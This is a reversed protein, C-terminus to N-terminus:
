SGRHLIRYYDALEDWATAERWGFSAGDVPDTNIRTRPEVFETQEKLELRCAMDLREEMERAFRGAFSGQSEVYGSPNIQTFGAEIGLDHVFRLYSKALLSVHINDRTYAPTNVTAVKGEFWCRMLYATFRPEEIPGFPNPIVFKGLSTGSAAAFYRFVDATLGKSLGYPSFAPSDRLGAGERNEFYSGTLVVRAGGIAALVEGIRAANNALARFLDFDASKYDTSDAAHHCLLDWPGRDRILGLFRDSGFSCNSEFRCLPTLLGVRQARIGEYSEPTSQL